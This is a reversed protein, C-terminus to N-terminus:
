AVTGKRWWVRVGGRGEAMAGKQWWERIGGDWTRCTPWMTGRKRRYSTLHLDYSTLDEPFPGHREGQAGTPHLIYPTPHLISRLVNAVNNWGLAQLIYSTPHLIKPHPACQEGRAGTPDLMYLLIYTVRVM